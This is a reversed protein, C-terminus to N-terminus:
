SLKLLVIGELPCVKLTVEDNLKYQEADPFVERFGPVDMVFLRPQKLRTEREKNEIDGFPLLDLEIAGMYFLKISETEHAAFEGTAILAQKVQCFQQESAVFIAIDVDNTKRKSALRPNVSLGIDRALAGVLYFDINLKKLVREFAALMQLVPESIINITM